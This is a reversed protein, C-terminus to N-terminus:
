VFILVLDINAANLIFMQALYYFGSKTQPFLNLQVALDNMINDDSFDLLFLPNKTISLFNWNKFSLFVKTPV